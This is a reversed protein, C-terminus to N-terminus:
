CLRLNIVGSTRKEKGDIIEDFRMTKVTKYKKINKTFTLLKPTMEDPYNKEFWNSFGEHLDFTSIRGNCEETCENLFKLYYDSDEKYQNTWKAVNKPIILIKTKMYEKYHEILLLMFDNKWDDFKGHIVGNIKRQNESVPNECFETPFDICKVRKGRPQARPAAVLLKILIM